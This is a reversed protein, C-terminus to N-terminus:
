PRPNLPSYKDLLLALSLQHLLGTAGCCCWPGFGLDIFRNPVEAVAAVGVVRNMRGLLTALAPPLLDRPLPAPPLPDQPPPAPPPFLASHSGSVSGLPVGKRKRRWSRRRQVSGGRRAGM